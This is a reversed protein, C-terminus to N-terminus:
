ASAPVPALARTLMSDVVQAARGAELTPDWGCQVQFGLIVALLVCSVYHPELAPDIEGAAQAERVVGEVLEHLPSISRVQGDLIRANLLSEAWLLVGLRNEEESGPERMQELAAGVFAALRRRAPLDGELIAWLPGYDRQSRERLADIIDEKSEFYHYVAGRSVEAEECIRALTADHFGFRAFCRVAADLIHQRRQELHAASVKPM